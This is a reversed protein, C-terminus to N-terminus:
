LLKELKRKLRRLDELQASYEKLINQFEPKRMYNLDEDTMPFDEGIVPPKVKQKKYSAIQEETESLVTDLNMDLLREAGTIGTTLLDISRKFMVDSYTEKEKLIEEWSMIIM